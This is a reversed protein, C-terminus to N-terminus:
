LGYSNKRKTHMESAKKSACESCTGCLITKATDLAFGQDTAVQKEIRKLAPCDYRIIKGCKDCKLYLFPTSQDAPAEGVYQFYPKSNGNVYYKKVTGNVALQELNRYITVDSVPTGSEALYHIIDLATINKGANLMLYKIIEQKHKTKYQSARSM